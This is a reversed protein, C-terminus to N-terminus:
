QTFDAIFGADGALRYPCTIETPGGGVTVHWASGDWTASWPHSVDFSSLVDQAVHSGDPVWYHWFTGPTGEDTWLSKLYGGTVGYNSYFGELLIAYTFVREVYPAGTCGSPNTTQYAFSCAITTQIQIKGTTFLRLTNGNVDGNYYYYGPNPPDPPAPQAFAPAVSNCSCGTLTLTLCLLLLSL